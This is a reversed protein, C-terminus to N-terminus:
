FHRKMRRQGIIGLDDDFGINFAIIETKQDDISFKNRRCFPLRGMDNTISSRGDMVQNLGDVGIREPPKPM